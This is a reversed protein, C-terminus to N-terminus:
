HEIAKTYGNWCSWIVKTSELPRVEFQKLGTYPNLTIDVKSNDSAQEILLKTARDRIAEIELATCMTPESTSNYSGKLFNAMRM